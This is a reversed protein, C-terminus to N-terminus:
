WIGYSIMWSKTDQELSLTCDTSASDVFASAGPPPPFYIGTPLGGGPVPIGPPPALVNAPEGRNRKMVASNAQKLWVAQGRAAPASVLSLPLLAALCNTQRGSERLAATRRM